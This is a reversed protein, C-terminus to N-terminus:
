ATIYQTATRWAGGALMNFHRVDMNDEKKVYLNYCPIPHGRIQLVELCVKKHSGRDTKYLRMMRGNKCPVAGRRKLIRGIREEFGHPIKVRHALPGMHKQLEVKTACPIQQQSLIVRAIDTPISSWNVNPDLSM